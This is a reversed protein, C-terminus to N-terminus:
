VSHLGRSGPSSLPIKKKCLPCQKPEYSSASIKALSHVSGTFNKKEGRDVLCTIGVVEANFDNVLDVIEKISGGKTIVDDVILVKEGERIRFGRRLVMKDRVREAFIFKKDLAQAVAFGLVIGGVAPAAVVDIPLDFYPESMAIAVRNTFSPYELVKMCQIYTDSHYGSSLKFHGTKLAGYSKLAELLEEREIM